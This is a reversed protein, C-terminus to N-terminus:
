SGGRGLGSRLSTASLELKRGRLGLEFEIGLVEAVESSQQTLDGRM